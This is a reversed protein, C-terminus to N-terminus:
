GELGPAAGPPIPTVSSALSYMDDEGAITMTSANQQTTTMTAANQHTIVLAHTDADPDPDAEVDQVVIDAEVAEPAALPAPAPVPELPAPTPPVAAPEPTPEDVHEPKSELARAEQEALAALAVEAQAEFTTAEFRQAM